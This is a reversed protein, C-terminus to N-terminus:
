GIYVSLIMGLIFGLVDAIAPTRGKYIDNSEPIIESCTIYLMAGAAFALSLGISTNSLEGVIGGILAGAAMPIQTFLVYTIIKYNPVKALKLPITVAFGEPIDHLAIVIAMSIGLTNSYVYTSGVAIGEPLNHLGIGFALLLAARTYKNVKMPNKKYKHVSLFQDIIIIMLAGIIIGVTSIKVSSKEFSQPLLEFCVIAMMIGATGGLVASFFRNGIKGLLIGVTMGLFTGLTSMVFAIFIGNVVLHM